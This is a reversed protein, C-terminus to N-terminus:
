ALAQRYVHANELQKAAIHQGGEACDLRWPIPCTHSVAKLMCGKLGNPKILRQRTDQSWLGSMQVTSLITTITGTQPDVMLPWTEHQIAQQASTVAASAKANQSHMSSMVGAALCEM